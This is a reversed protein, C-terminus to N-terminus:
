RIIHVHCLWLCPSFYVFPNVDCMVQAKTWHLGAPSLSLSFGDIDMHENRWQLLHERQQTWCSYTLVTWEKWWLTLRPITSSYDRHPHTIEAGRSLVPDNLARQMPSLATFTPQFDIQGIVKSGRVSISLIELRSIALHSSLAEWNKALRAWVRRVPM